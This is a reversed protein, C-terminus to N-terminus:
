ARFLEESTNRLHRYADAGKTLDCGAKIREELCCCVPILCGCKKGGNHLCYKCECDAAFYRQSAGVPALKSHTDRARLEKINFRTNPGM